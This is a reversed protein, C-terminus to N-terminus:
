RQGCHSQSLSIFSPGWSFAKSKGHCYILNSIAHQWEAHSRSRIRYFEFTEHNISGEGRFFTLDASCFTWSLHTHMLTEREKTNKWCKKGCYFRKAFMKYKILLLFPNQMSQGFQALDLALYPDKYYLHQFSVRCSCVRQARKVLIVHCNQQGGFILSFKPQNHQCLM